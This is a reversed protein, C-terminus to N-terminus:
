FNGIVRMSTIVCVKGNVRLSFQYGGGCRSGCMYGAGVTYRGPSKATIGGVSFGWYSTFAPDVGHLRHDSPSIGWEVGWKPMASAPYADIGHRALAAQLYADMDHGFVKVYLHNGRDIAGQRMVRVLVPLICDRYDVPMQEIVTADQQQQRKAAAILIAQQTTSYDGAQKPLAHDSSSPEHRVSHSSSCGTLAATALLALLRIM